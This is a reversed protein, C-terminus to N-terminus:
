PACVALFCWLHTTVGGPKRGRGPLRPWPGMEVERSVKTWQQAEVQNDADVAAHTLEKLM